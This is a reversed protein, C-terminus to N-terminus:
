KGFKKKTVHRALVKTVKLKLEKKESSEKEGNKKMKKAAVGRSKWM